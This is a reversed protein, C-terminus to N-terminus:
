LVPLRWFWVSRWRQQLPRGSVRDVRRPGSVHVNPRHMRTWRLLPLRRLRLDRRGQQVSGRISLSTERLEKREARGCVGFGRLLLPRWIRMKRRSRQMSGSSQKQGFMQSRPMGPRFLVQFWRLWLARERSQVRRSSAFLGQREARRCM